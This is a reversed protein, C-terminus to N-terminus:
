LLTEPGFREVREAHTLLRALEADAGERLENQRVINAMHRIVRGLHEDTDKRGDGGDMLIFDLLETHGVGKPEGSHFCVHVRGLQDGRLLEVVWAGRDNNTLAALRWGLGVEDGIKLPALLWMPGEGAEIPPLVAQEAKFTSAIAQSSVAGLAGGLAVSKIMDRRNM